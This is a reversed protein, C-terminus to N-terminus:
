LGRIGSASSTTPSALLLVIAAVMPSVRYKFTKNYLRIADWIEVGHSNVSDIVKDDLSDATALVTSGVAKCRVEVFNGSGAEETKGHLDHSSGHFGSCNSHGDSGVRLSTM